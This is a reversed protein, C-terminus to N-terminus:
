RVRVRCVFTQAPPTGQEAHRRYEMRLTDLGGHAARFRWVDTGGAGPRGIASREQEFAMDGVPELVAGADDLVQWAYGTTPNAALRVEFTGGTRIEIETGSDESGFTAIVSAGCGLGALITVSATASVRARRLVRERPSLFPRIM